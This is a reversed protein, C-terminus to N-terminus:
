LRRKSHTQTPEGPLQFSANKKQMSTVEAGIARALQSVMQECRNGQVKDVDVRTTGNASVEARIQAVERYQGRKPARDRAVIHVDGKSLQSLRVEMGMRTQLHAVTREITHHRIMSHIRDKSGATSITLRGTQNREIVIREGRINQLFIQPQHTLPEPRRIPCVRHFGLNEASQVLTELDRINLHVSAIKKPEPSLTVPPISSCKKELRKRRQEENLRAMAAQAEPTKESLWNVLAATGMVVGAAGISAIGPENSTSSNMTSDYPTLQSENSM